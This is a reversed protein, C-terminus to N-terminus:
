FFDVKFVDAFLRGNGLDGNLYLKNDEPNIEQLKTLIDNFDEDATRHWLPKYFTKCLPLAKRITINGYTNTDRQEDWKHKYLASKRFIRDMQELNSNCYFSLISRLATDAKSQSPFDTIDVNWLRTFKKGNEANGAKQTVSEDSLKEKWKPILLGNSGMM